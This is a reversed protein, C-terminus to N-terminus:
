EVAATGRKLAYMNTDAHHLLEDMDEGEEPYVATGISVSVAISRGNLQFPREFAARIKGVIVAADDPGQINNLLVTFEDGGRRGITDSERVCQALRRAVERLVMDGAEHGLSDNIDKFDDLDLWLLALHERDRHARKLAVSFRDQFLARNPLNTLLDYHAMRHLRAETQKREIAAAVQTSVFQLLERDEETYRFEGGYTKLVLAGMVGDQGILPVGLWDQYDRNSDTSDGDLLLSRGSRIVEAIGAHVDLPQLGPESEREDVFWPFSLSNDGADYLAVCFNKAPLLGAIIDHIDGYLAPLGDACHAAESIRYLAEQMRQAHKLETIDRAVALRLRDSESWRASWMIHVVRGDKHVYRNEFHMKSRGDMIEAATVLTQERDDPHVFEIMNRGILEERTYGLLQEIAASVFVFRGEEDVVCVTDLLLDMIRPLLTQSNDTMLPAKTMNITKYDLM